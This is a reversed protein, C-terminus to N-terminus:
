DAGRMPAPIKGHFYKPDSGCVGVMEIDMLAEAPGITPQPFRRMEIRGPSTVVMARVASALGEM